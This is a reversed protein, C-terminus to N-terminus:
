DASTIDELGIELSEGAMHMADAAAKCTKMDDLIKEIESMSLFGTVATSTAAAGSAISLGFSAHEKATLNGVRRKAPAAASPYSGGTVFAQAKVGLAFLQCVLVFSMTICLKKM